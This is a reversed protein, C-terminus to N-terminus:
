ELLDYLERGEEMVNIVPTKILGALTNKFEDADFEYGYASVPNITVAILETNNRVQTKIKRLSLKQHTETNILFKSADEAVIVANQVGQKVLGNALADTLAAQEFGKCSGDENVLALPFGATLQELEVNIKESKLLDHVHRTEELVRSMNQNLAAGTCLIASETIAPSAPTKRAFAGDVIVTHAGYNRLMECLLATQANISPGSLQVHGGSRARIIIVEGLPTNIGTANLIEKTVDCLALLSLTTAFVTNEDVYIRPKGTQTVIDRDEGDRGISSLGLLVGRCSYYRLLANLVTTKGSNKSMGIISLSRM